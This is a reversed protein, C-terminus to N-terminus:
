MFIFEHITKYFITLILTFSKCLISLFGTFVVNQFERYPSPSTYICSLITLRTTYIIKEEGFIFIMSDPMPPIQYQPFDLNYFAALAVSMVACTTTSMSEEMREVIELFETKWGTHAEFSMGASTWFSWLRSVFCYCICFGIYMEVIYIPDPLPEM